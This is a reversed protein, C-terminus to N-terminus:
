TQSIDFDGSPFLVLDGDDVVQSPANTYMLLNGTTKTVADVVAHATITEGTGTLTGFDIDGNNSTAGGSAATWSAHAERAYGTMDLEDITSGTDADVIETTEVLAIYISPQTYSTNRFIHDLVANALYNSYYGTPISVIVEGSAVKLKKGSAVNKSVSFSGHALMNGSTAADFIAYHTAIGQDATAVDFIVNANQTIARSAAAGFTIAKRIYGGVSPEALGSGDDLPDATSWGLYVTVPSTWAATGLIHDLIKNETYDSFSGM